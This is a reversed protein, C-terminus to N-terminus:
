GSDGWVRLGPANALAVDLAAYLLALAAVAGAVSVADLWVLARASVPLACALAAAALLANRAVLAGSLPRRARPGACGCDIHRRGRALNLVIAAAYLTLLAAAAWAGPQAPGPALLAGAAALEAALLAPAAAALARQPLLRYDALALRFAALDRLKHLAAWGFLAALALRLAAHAAPDIAM